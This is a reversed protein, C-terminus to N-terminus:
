GRFYDALWEIILTSIRRGAVKAACERSEKDMAGREGAQSLPM